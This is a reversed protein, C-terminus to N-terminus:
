SPPSSDRVRPLSDILAILEDPDVPKVLHYDFGAEQSRRRDTHQGWGTLAVLLVASGSPRDRLRRAVEYGNMGPMGIDLLVVEPHFAEVQELASPGDHAVQVKQHHLRTLLRSLSLAAD